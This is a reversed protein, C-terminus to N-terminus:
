VRLALLTKRAPQAVPSSSPLGVASLGAGWLDASMLRVIRTMGSESFAVQESPRPSTQRPPAEPLSHLPILTRPRYYGASKTYARLGAGYATPTPTANSTHRLTKPKSFIYSM